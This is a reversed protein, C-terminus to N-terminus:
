QRYILIVLIEFRPAYKVANVLGFELASAHPKATLDLSACAMVQANQIAAIVTQNIATRVRSTLNVCVRTLKRIM